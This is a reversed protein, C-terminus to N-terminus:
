LFDPFFAGYSDQAFQALGIDRGRQQFEHSGSFEQNHLNINLDVVLSGLLM